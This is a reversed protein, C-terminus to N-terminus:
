PPASGHTPFCHSGSFGVRSTVKLTDDHYETTIAFSRTSGSRDETRGDARQDVGQLEATELVDVPQGNDGVPVSNGPRQSLTVSGPVIVEPVNPNSRYDLRLLDTLRPAFLDLKGYFGETIFDWHETPRAQLTGMFTSRTQDERYITQFSQDLIAYRTPDLSTGNKGNNVVGDGNYDLGASSETGRRYRLLNQEDTESLRKTYAAGLAVGLRGDAFVDSYFGSARPAWQDRHSDDAEEITGALKRQGIDLPRATRAIVTGALGGEELDATPEKYVEVKSVFESPLITFDFSRNPSVTGYTDALASTLTHGNLQVLTFATPMGRITVDQAEGRLRTIQVGTVRQLSEAVDETPFKDIDEASIADVVTDADRKTRIASELSARVGSVTVVEESEGAASPPSQPVVQTTPTTQAQVAASLLSCAAAGLLLIHRM